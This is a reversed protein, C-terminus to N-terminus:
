KRKRWIVFIVIGVFVMGLFIYYFTTYEFPNLIGLFGVPKTTCLGNNMNINDYVMVNYTVGVKYGVDCSSHTTFEGNRILNNNELVFVGNPIEGKAVGSVDFYVKQPGDSDDIQTVTGTFSYKSESLAQFYDIPAACSCAYSNPIQFLSLSLALLIIM